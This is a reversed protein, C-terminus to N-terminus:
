QMQNDQTTPSHFRHIVYKGKGPSYPYPPRAAYYILSEPELLSKM